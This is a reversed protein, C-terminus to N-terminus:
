GIGFNVVSKLIYDTKEKAKLVTMIEAIGPIFCLLPRVIIM